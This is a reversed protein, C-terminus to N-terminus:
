EFEHLVSVAGTAYAEPFDETVTHAPIIIEEEGVMHGGFVHTIELASQVDNKIIHIALEPRDGARIFDPTYGLESLTEYADKAAQPNPFQLKISPDNM